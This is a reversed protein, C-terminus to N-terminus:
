KVGSPVRFFTGTVPPPEMVSTGLSTMPSLKAAVQSSSPVMTKAPLDCSRNRTEPSPPAGVLRVVSVVAPIKM